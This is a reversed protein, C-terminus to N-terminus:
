GADGDRPAALARRVAELLDKRSVPKMLRIDEPRLGNGHVAAESAYGTFFIFRMGPLLARTERALAPGQLTGPMVIDTAVLDFAPDESLLRLAADGSSATRVAYGANRLTRELIDLLDPQDEVLLIRQGSRDPEAGPADPAPGAASVTPAQAMAPFYLKFSTGVGPESYVRVTGGSQKVYGQVMSLGLGTGAGVPKTSFFPDFIRDIVKPDIGSGTDSVALMVYRGPPVDEQRDAVYDEEIRVNATEVTVMGSGTLADRANVLLNVLASQLSVRDAEIPWLGAQLVTEIEIRSEITRRLWNETERVVQNVDIREPHLRAKRAYALLNQTLEAGRRTAAISADVLMRQEDPDADARGLTDRLLEQNGLIVALLNNFDHAVGGTLQGISDFKQAQMAISRAEVLEAEATRLETLDLNTGVMRLAQGARDRLVVANGKISRTGGDPRLARYEIDFPVDEALCREFAATARPLDDPHVRDRWTDFGGDRIAAPLGHLEASRTDWNLSDRIIDYDWVGFRGARLALDLRETLEAVQRTRAALTTAVTVVWATGLVSVANALQILPLDNRLWAMAREAPSIWLAVSGACLWIGIVLAGLSLPRLLRDPRVLGVRVLALGMLAYLFYAIVGSPAFVGGVVGRALAGAAAAMLGGLPGGLPGGLVAALIVPEARADVTAGDPLTMPNTTVLATVAGFLLGILAQGPWPAFPVTRGRIAYIGFGLLTLLAVNELLDFVASM